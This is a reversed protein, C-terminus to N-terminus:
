KNIKVNTVILVKYCNILKEKLTLTNRKLNVTATELDSLSMKTKQALNSIHKQTPLPIIKPSHELDWFKVMDPYESAQMQEGKAKM